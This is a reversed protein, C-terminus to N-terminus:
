RQRLWEALDAFRRSATKTFLFPFVAHILSFISIWLCQFGFYGAMRAHQVYTENQEVLHRTFYSAKETNDNRAM